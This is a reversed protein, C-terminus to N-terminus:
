RPVGAPADGYANALCNGVLLKGTAEAVVEGLQNHCTASMEVIGGDHRPKAHLALVQWRTTLTDGPYVPARFRVNHELYGIATGAFQMGLATSMIAGTVPGHLICGGYRTGQAFQRNVHLPNFDGTLGTAAQLHAETVTLSEEYVDGLKVTHFFHGNLPM